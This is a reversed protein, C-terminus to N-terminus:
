AGDRKGPIINNVRQHRMKRAIKRLTEDPLYGSLFPAPSPEDISREATWKTVDFNKSFLRLASAASAKALKPSFLIAHIAKDDDVTAREAVISRLHSWPTELTFSHVVRLNPRDVMAQTRLKSWDPQLSVGEWQMPTALSPRFPTTQLVVIVRHAPSARNVTQEFEHLDNVTEGPFNGINYVMLTTANPGYSGM